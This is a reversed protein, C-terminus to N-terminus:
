PYKKKIGDSASRKTWFYRKRKIKATKRKKTFIFCAGFPSEASLMFTFSNKSPVGHPCIQHPAPLPYLSFKRHPPAFIGMRAAHTSAASSTTRSFRGCIRSTDCVSSIRRSSPQETVSVPRVATISLRSICAAASQPSATRFIREEM